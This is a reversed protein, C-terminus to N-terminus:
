HRALYEKIAGVVYEVQEEEMTPFLPLTVERRGVYETLPLHTDSPMLKKYYSFLHIPPYHISTQIGHERLYEMLGRKDIKESLLVPFIHYSPIGGFGSFPVNIEEISSLKERYLTWLAKRSRNNADLKSLQVLGLSSRIEDIRYNFGPGVVDYSFDHGEYRDWTLSTM